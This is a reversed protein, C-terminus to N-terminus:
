DTWSVSLTNMCLRKMPVKQQNSTDWVNTLM